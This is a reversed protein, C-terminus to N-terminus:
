RLEVARITEVRQSIAVLLNILVDYAAANMGRDRFVYTLQDLTIQPDDDPILDMQDHLPEPERFGGLAGVMSWIQLTEILIEQKSDALDSAFDVTLEITRQTLQENLKFPVATLREPYESAALERTSQAGAAAITLKRVAHRTAYVLNALVVIANPDVRLSSFSWNPQLGRADPEDSVLKAAVRAPPVTQGGLAGYEALRAFWVVVCRLQDFAEDDFPNDLVVHLTAPGGAGLDGRVEVPFPLGQVRM